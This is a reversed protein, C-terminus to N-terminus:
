CVSSQIFIERRGVAGAGAVVVIIQIPLHPASICGRQRPPGQTCLWAQLLWPPFPLCPFGQGAQGGAWPSDTQGEHDPQSNTQSCRTIQRATGRSRDVQRDLQGEHDTQRGTRKDRATQRATRLPRDAQRDPQGGHDSQEITGQPRDLGRSLQGKHDTQSVTQSDRM